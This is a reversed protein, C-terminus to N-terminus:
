KSIVTITLVDSYAGASAHSLDGVTIEVPFPVGDATTATSLSAAAVTRGATLSLSRGGLTLTYPLYNPDGKDPPLLTGGNQSQITVDFGNNGRVRLDFDAKQGEHVFGFDVSRKPNSANFTRGPDVVSVEAVSRVDVRYNVDIMQVLTNNLLTGQFLKFHAFGTFIGPAAAQDPAIWFFHLHTNSAVGTTTSFSGAIVDNATAIPLDLLPSTRTSDTFINFTLHGGSGVMVRQGPGGGFETTATVFYTCTGSVKTVTFTVPQARDFADFVNYGAGAGTWTVVPPLLGFRLGTCNAEADLPLVALALLGLLARVLRTM